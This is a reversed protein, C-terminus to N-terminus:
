KGIITTQIIILWIYKSLYQIEDFFEDKLLQIIPKTIIM